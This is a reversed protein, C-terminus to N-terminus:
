IHKWNRRTIIAFVSVYKIQPFKKAISCPRMGSAYMRRMELVDSETAISHSNQEGRAIHEKVRWAGDAGCTRLNVIDSIASETREFKQALEKQTAGADYLRRMDLISESSLLNYRKRPIVMRGKQIMDRMNGTHTAAFLHIPRFCPPSDCHHCVEQGIPVNGHAQEFSVVHPRKHNGGMCNPLRMVGYGRTHKGRDWMLCPYASWHLTVDDNACELLRAQLYEYNSIKYPM